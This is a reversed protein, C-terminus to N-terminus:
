WIEKFADLYQYVVLLGSDLSFISDLLYPSCQSKYVQLCKSIVAFSPYLKPLRKPHSFCSPCIDHGAVVLLLFDLLVSEWVNLQFDLSSNRYLVSSCSSFRGSDEWKQYNNHLAASIM